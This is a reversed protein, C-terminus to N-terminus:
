RIREELEQRTIKGNVFALLTDVSNKLRAVEARLSDREATLAALQQDLNYGGFHAISAAYEPLDEELQEREDLDAEDGMYRLCKRVFEHQLATHNGIM